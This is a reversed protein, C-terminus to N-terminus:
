SKKVRVRTTTASKATPSKAAPKKAPAEDVPIDPQPAPEPTAAPLGRMEEFMQQMEARMKAISEDEAQESMQRVLTPVLKNILSTKDRPNGNVILYEAEDLVNSVFTAIRRRLQDDHSIVEAAIAALPDATM